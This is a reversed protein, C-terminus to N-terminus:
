ETNNNSWNYKKNLCQELLLTIVATTNTQMANSGVAVNGGGTTNATLANDGVLLNNQTGTTNADLANTVLLLM